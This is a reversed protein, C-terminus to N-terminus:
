SELYAPICLSPVCCVCDTVIDSACRRGRGTFALMAKKRKLKPGHPSLERVLSRISAGGASSPLTKAM